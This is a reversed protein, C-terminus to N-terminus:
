FIGGLTSSFVIPLIIWSPFEPIIGFNETKVLWFNASIESRSVGALAYGGDDSEVLSYAHEYSAKGYSQNLEMKGSSDTKVLWIDGNLDYAKTHGALAFGGDSTQVLLYAIDEETSGYTQSWTKESTQANVLVTLSAGLLGLLIIGSYFFSKSLSNREVSKDKIINLYTNNYYFGSV